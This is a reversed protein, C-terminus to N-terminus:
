GRRQLAVLAVALLCGLHGALSRVSVVTAAWAARTAQISGAATTRRCRGIRRRLNVYLHRRLLHLSSSLRLLLRLISRRQRAASVRLLECTHAVRANQGRPVGLCQGPVSVRLASVNVVTSNGHRCSLQKHAQQTTVGRPAQGRRLRQVVREKVRQARVILCHQQLHLRLDM